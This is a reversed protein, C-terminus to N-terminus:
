LYKQIMKFEEECATERESRQRQEGPKLVIPPCKCNVARFGQHLYWGEFQLFHSATVLVDRPVKYGHTLAFRVLGCLVDPDADWSYADLKKQREPTAPIETFEPDFITAVEDLVFDSDDSYASWHGM